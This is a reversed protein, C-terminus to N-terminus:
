FIKCYGLPNPSSHESTTVPRATLILVTAGVGSDSAVTRPTTYYSYVSDSAVSQLMSSVRAGYYSSSPGYM